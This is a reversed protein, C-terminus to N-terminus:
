LIKFVMMSIGFAVIQNALGKFFIMNHCEGKLYGGMGIEVGEVM